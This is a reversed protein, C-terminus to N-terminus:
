NASRRKKKCRAQALVHLDQVHRVVLREGDLLHLVEEKSVYGHLIPEGVLFVHVPQRPLPDDVDGERNEAFLEMLPGLVPDKIPVVLHGLRVVQEDVEVWLDRLDESIAGM